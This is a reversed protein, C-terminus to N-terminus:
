SYPRCNPRILISTFTISPTFTTYTGISTVKEERVFRVRILHLGRKFLRLVLLTFSTFYAIFRTLLDFLDFLDFVLLGSLLV